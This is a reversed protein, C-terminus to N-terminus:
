SVCLSGFQLIAAASSSVQISNFIPIPNLPRKSHLLKSECYACKGHTEEILTEKIEPHSYRTLLYKTSKKEAKIDDLLRSKWKSANKILVAPKQKKIIKIM